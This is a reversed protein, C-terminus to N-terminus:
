KKMHVVRQPFPIIIDEKDFKNKIMRRLEREVNWNQGVETDVLIRIIVSSEALEEVGLVKPEEIIGDVLKQEFIRKLEGELVRIVRDVNESYDVGIDILGRNFDKSKNTVIKISGNPIIHVDGDLSRLRTSRLGISEVIGTLSEITIVDGVGLQDEFLIFMGTIIDQIVSQAGFGIAVSSVSAFAILSSIDVDFTTLISCLTIFLVVYKIVSDSIAFVTEKKRDTLANNLHISKHTVMSLFKIVMRSIIIQVGVLALKFLFDLLKELLVVTDVAELM